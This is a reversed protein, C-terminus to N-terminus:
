EPRPKRKWSGVLTGAVICFAGMVAALSLREGALCGFVGGWVPEAAYIVGARSPSVTKQAWNMTVQIIAGALGLGAACLLVLPNAEPLPEGTLPVCALGLVAATFLQVISVVGLDARGAFFGILLIEGAFLVAGALTIVDGRGLGGNGPEAMLLLGAFALGVGIGHPISPPRRMVLWQLIPVLPVYLATLFASRSAPISQLGWTQLFYGLFVCTGIIAGATVDRANMRRLARPFLLAAFFAAAAFRCGVFLFPGCHEMAYRIVPFTAGWTMTVAM